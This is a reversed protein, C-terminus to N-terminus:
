RRRRRKPRGNDRRGTRALAVLRHRADARSVQPVQEPLHALSSPSGSVRGDEDVVARAEPWDGLLVASFGRPHRALLDAIRPAEKECDAVLLLRPADVAPSSERISLETELYALAADLTGPLFLRRLSEDLVEDEDLGFLVMADARPLVVLCDDGATELAALTLARAAGRVGPGELALVPMAFPDPVNRVRASRVPVTLPPLDTFTGGPVAPAATRQRLTLAIVAAPLILLLMGLLPMPPLSGNLAEDTVARPRPSPAAENGTRDTGGTTVPHPAPTVPAGTRSSPVPKPSDRRPPRDRDPPREPTRRAGPPLRQEHRADRKVSRWIQLCIQMAHRGALRGIEQCARPVPESTTAQAPSTSMASFLAVMVACGLLGRM